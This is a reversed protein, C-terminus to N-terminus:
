RDIKEWDICDKAITTATRRLLSDAEAETRGLPYFPDGLERFGSAVTQDTFATGLLVYAWRQDFGRLLRDRMDMFTRRYHDATVTHSGVFWYYFVHEIQLKHGEKSLFPKGDQGVPESYCRVRSVPLRRGDIEIAIRETRVNKFGQAPLCREPRHISDNLDHGSLVISADVAHFQGIRPKDATPDVLTYLRKEFETDDALSETEKESPPRSVGRWFQFMEESLPYWQAEEPVRVVTSWFSLDSPLKMRVASERSAGKPLLFALSLGALVLVVATALRQTSRNM